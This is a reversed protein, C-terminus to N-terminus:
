PHTGKLWHSAGQGAPCPGRCRGRWAAGRRVRARLPAGPSAPACRGQPAPAPAAPGPSPCAPSPALPGRLPGGGTVGGRLPSRRLRCAEPGRAPHEAGRRPGRKEQPAAGACRPGPRRLRRPGPPVGPRGSASRTCLGGAAARAGCRVSPMRALSAARHCAAHAHLRCSVPSGAAAPMGQRTTVTRAPRPAPPRCPSPPRCAGSLALPHLRQSMRARPQGPQPLRAARPGHAHRPGAPRRRRPVATAGPARARAEAGPRMEAPSSCRRALRARGRARRACLPARKGQLSTPHATRAGAAPMRALAAPSRSRAQRLCALSRPRVTRLPRASAMLAPRRPPASAAIARKRWQRRAGGRQAAPTAKVEAPASVSHRRPIQGAHATGAQKPQRPAHGPPYSPSMTDSRAARQAKV